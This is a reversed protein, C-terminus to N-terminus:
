EVPRVPKGNPDFLFRVRKGTPLHPVSKMTYGQELLSQIDDKPTSPPVPSDMTDDIGELVKSEFEKALIGPLFDGRQKAFSRGRARLRNQTATILKGSLAKYDKIDQSLPRGMIRLSVQRALSAAVSPDAEARKADAETVVGAGQGLKVLSLQALKYGTPTGDLLTDIKKGAGIQDRMEKVDALGEFQKLQDLIVKNQKDQDRRADRGSVADAQIRAKELEFKGALELEKRKNSFEGEYQATAAEALGADGTELAAMNMANADKFPTPAIGGIATAVRTAPANFKALEVALNNGVQSLQRRRQMEDMDSQQLQQVQQQAQTIAQTAAYEQVGEKFAGFAKLVDDLAM